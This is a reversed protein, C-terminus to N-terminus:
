DLIITDRDNFVKETGDSLQFTLSDYNFFKPTFYTYHWNHEPGLYTLIHDTVDEDKENTIQLVPVPGRSPMIIMKYLKGNVVYSKEYMNKDIKIISKNLYQILSIYLAKFILQLSVVIVMCCNKHQTKVLNNLKKWKNYRYLVKNYIINHGDIMIFLSVGSIVLGSLFYEYM